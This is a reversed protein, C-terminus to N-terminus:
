NITNIIFFYNMINKKLVILNLENFEENYKNIINYLQVGMKQYLHFNWIARM